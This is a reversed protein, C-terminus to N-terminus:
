LRTAFRGCVREGSLATLVEKAKNFSSSCLKKRKRHDTPVSQLCLDCGVLSMVLLAVFLRSRSVM